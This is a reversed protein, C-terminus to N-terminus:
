SFLAERLQRWFVPLLGALESYFFVLAVTWAAAAFTAIWGALAMLGDRELL